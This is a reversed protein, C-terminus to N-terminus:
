IYNGILSWSCGLSLLYSDASEFSRRYTQYAFLERGMSYWQAGQGTFIFALKSPRSSRVPKELGEQISKSLEAISSAVCFTKWPLITRRSCLTYSLRKMLSAKSIGPNNEHLYEACSKYLRQTGGQDNSSWVFLRPLEIASVFKRYGSFTNLDINSAGSIAPTRSEFTTTGIESDSTQVDQMDHYHPFLVNHNGQFGRSSLYHFADDM